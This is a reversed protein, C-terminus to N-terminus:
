TSPSAPAGSSPVAPAPLAAPPKKGKKPPGDSLTFSIFSCVPYHPVVIASWKDLEGSPGFRFHVGIRFPLDTCPSLFKAYYWQHGIAQVWIGKDGDAEWTWINKRAFPLTAEPRRANPTAALGTPPQADQARAASVTILAGASLTAVVVASRFANMFIDEQVASL